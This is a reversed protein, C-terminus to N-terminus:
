HMCRLVGVSISEQIEMDFLNAECIIKKKTSMKGQRISATCDQLSGRRGLFVVCLLSKQTLAHLIRKEDFKVFFAM